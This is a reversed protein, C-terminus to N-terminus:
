MAFCFSVLLPTSPVVARLQATQSSMQPEARPRAALLDCLWPRLGTAQGEEPVPPEM